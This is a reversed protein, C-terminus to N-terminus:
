FRIQLQAVASNHNYRTTLPVNDKFMNFVCGIQLRAFYDDAFEFSMMPTISQRPNDSTKYNERLYEYRTSFEVSRLRPHNCQYRLNPFIYFGKNRYKSVPLIRDPDCSFETVNTGEKYEGTVGLNFQRSLPFAATFDAGWADTRKNEVSGITGNVAIRFDKLVDTELRGYYNKGNDNDTPQNRNNGNYVGGYYHFPLKGKTNLDGYISIGMQFSQWGSSSFLYYQNSYDLSKILDAPLLDEAGFFPRFQGVQIHLHDNYHYRIFANELVKNQNNGAFDALNMLVNADFHDNINTRVMMRVRKLQFSNTIGTGTFHKGNVDVSDTLSTTYRMQLMGSITLSRRYKSLNSSSDAPDRGSGFLQGVSLTLFVFLIGWNSKLLM